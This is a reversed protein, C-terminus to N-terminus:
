SVGLGDLHQALDVRQDDVLGARQRLALWLPADTVGRAVVFEVSNRSAALRSRPLSCGSAAAMTAARRVRSRATSRRLSRTSSRCLAHAAADVAARTASPLAGHEVLEPRHVALQWRCASSAAAGLALRHHEDDDVAREGPQDADGIRDLLGRRFRDLQQVPLSRMTMSVPSLRVVASATARLSPM